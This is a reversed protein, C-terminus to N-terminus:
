EHRAGPPRTCDSPDLSYFVTGSWRLLFPGTTGRARRDHCLARNDPEFAGTGVASFRVFCGVGTVRLPCFFARYAPLYTYEAERRADFV